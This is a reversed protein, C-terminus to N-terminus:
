SRPKKNEHFFFGGIVGPFHLVFREEFLQPGEGTGHPDEEDTQENVTETGEHDGKEREVQGIDAVAGPFDSGDKGGEGQSSDSGHKEAAPEAVQDSAAVRHRDRQKSGGRGHEQHPLRVTERGKEGSGKERSDGAPHIM